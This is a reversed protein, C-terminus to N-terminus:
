IEDSLVGYREVNLFIYFKTMFDNSNSRVSIRCFPLNTELKSRLLVPFNTTNDLKRCIKLNGYPIRRVTRSLRVNEVRNYTAISVVTTRSYWVIRPLMHELSSQHVAVTKSCGILKITYRFHLSFKLNAGNKQVLFEFNWAFSKEDNATAVTCKVYGM